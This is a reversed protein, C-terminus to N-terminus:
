FVDPDYGACLNQTQWLLLVSRMDYERQVYLCNCCWILVSAFSSFNLFSPWLYFIDCLFKGDSQAVSESFSHLFPTFVHNICTSKRHNTWRYYHFKKGDCESHIKVARCKDLIDWLFSTNLSQESVNLHTSSRLFVSLRKLQMEFGSVWITPM